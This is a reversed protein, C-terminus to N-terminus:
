RYKTVVDTLVNAVDECMDTANELYEYIEKVKIIKIPDKEEFLLAVSDHLLTDAINELRNVEVCHADIKKANKMNNLLSVAQNLEVMMKVLIDAFEKMYKTSVPIKFICLRVATSNIYDLVDDLRYALASIDERDIPTVFTKNLAEIIDHVIQDGDHEIAKIAESQKHTDELKELMAKLAQAGKLVNAAEDQLKGFFMKDQPIIWEKFGM